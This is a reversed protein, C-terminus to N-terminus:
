DLVCICARHKRRWSLLSKKVLM